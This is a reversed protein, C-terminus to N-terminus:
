QTRVREERTEADRGVVSEGGDRRTGHATIGILAAPTSNQYSATFSSPHPSARQRGLANENNKGRGKKEEKGPM